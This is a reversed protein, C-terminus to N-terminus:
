GVKVSKTVGGGKVNVIVAGKYPVFIFTYIEVYYTM